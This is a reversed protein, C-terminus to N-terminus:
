LVKASRLGGVCLRNSKLPTQRAEPDAITSRSAPYTKAKLVFSKPVACLSEFIRRISVFIM